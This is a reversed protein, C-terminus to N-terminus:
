PSPSRRGSGGRWRPRARWPISRRCCFRSSTGASGRSSTPSGARSRLRQALRQLLLDGSHHGLTDNIEKFRDLDILLLGTSTGTKAAQEVAQETWQALLERNALGTLADHLAQHRSTSAELEARRQYGVLVVSCTLLLIADVAILGAGSWRLTTNQRDVDGLYATLDGQRREANDVVRQRLPTFTLTAREGYGYIREGRATSDLVDQLTQTYSTYPARLLGAQEVDVPDGHAELWDLAANASGVM